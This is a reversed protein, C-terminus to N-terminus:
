VQAGGVTGRIITVDPPDTREDILLTGPTGLDIVNTGARGRLATVGPPIVFSFIRNASITVPIANGDQDFVQFSSM